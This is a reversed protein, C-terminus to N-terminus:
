LVKVDVVSNIQVAHSLLGYFTLARYSYLLTVYLYGSYPPTPSAKDSNAPVM